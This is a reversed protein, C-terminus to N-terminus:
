VHKAKITKHVYTDELPSIGMKLFRLGVVHSHFGRMFGSIQLSHSVNMQMVVFVTSLSSFKPLSYINFNWDLVSTCWSGEPTSHVLYRTKEGPCLVLTVQHHSRVM